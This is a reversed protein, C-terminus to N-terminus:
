PGGPVPLVITTLAIDYSVFATTKSKLGSLISPLYVPLFSSSFITAETM